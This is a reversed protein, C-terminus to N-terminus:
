GRPQSSREAVVAVDRVGPCQQLAAEVEAPEIRFGRIKVQDDNRGLFEVAGDPTWRGQDGTRYLRQGVIDRTQAVVFREATLDPRGVYGTALGCGALHIEGQVGVPVPEGSRDM